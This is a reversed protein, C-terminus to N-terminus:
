LARVRHKNWIEHTLINLQIFIEWEPGIKSQCVSKKLSFDQGISAAISSKAKQEPFQFLHSHHNM